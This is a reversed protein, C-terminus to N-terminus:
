SIEEETHQGMICRLILPVLSDATDFDCGPLGGREGAVFIRWTTTEGAEQVARVVDGPEIVRGADRDVWAAGEREDRHTPRGRVGADRWGAFPVGAECAAYTGCRNGTRGSRRNM